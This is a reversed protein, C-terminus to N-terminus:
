RAWNSVPYKLCTAPAALSREVEPLGFLIGCPAPWLERERHCQHKKASPDGFQAARDLDSKPGSVVPRDSRRFGGRRIRKSGLFLFGSNSSHSRERAFLGRGIPPM